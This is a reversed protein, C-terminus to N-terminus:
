LVFDEDRLGTKVLATSSLKEQVEIGPSAVVAGSPQSTSAYAKKAANQNKWALKWCTEKTHRRRKCYACFLSDRNDEGEPGATSNSQSSRPTWNGGTIGKTELKKTLLAASNLPQSEPTVRIRSEAQRIIGIADELSPLKERHLIQSRVSEYVSNLGMLFTLLRQKLIYEREVSQPNKTPWLYDIERWMAKLKSSYQLVNDGGQRAQAAMANLEYIRWDHTQEESYKQIEDWMEKVTNCYLFDCRMEPTMSRLMWGLILSEEAKWRKFDPDTASRPDETLHDGLLFGFLTLTIMKSWEFMNGGDFKVEPPPFVLTPQGSDQLPSLDSGGPRGVSTREEVQSLNEDGQSAM